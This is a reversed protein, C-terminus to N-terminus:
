AASRRMAEEIAAYALKADNLNPATYIARRAGEVEVTLVIARRKVNALPAFACVLGGIIWLLPFQVLLGGLLLIAGISIVTVRASGQVVSEQIQPASVAGVAIEDDGCIIRKDTVTFDHGKVIQVEGPDVQM